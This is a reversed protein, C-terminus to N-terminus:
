RIAFLFGKREIMLRSTLMWREIKREKNKVATRQNKKGALQGIRKRGAARPISREIVKTRTRAKGESEESEATDIAEQNAKGVMVKNIDEKYKVGATTGLTAALLVVLLTVLPAIGRRFKRLYSM